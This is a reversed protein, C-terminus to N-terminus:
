LLKVQSGTEERQGAVEKPPAELLVPYDEKTQIIRLRELDKEECRLLAAKASDSDGALLM